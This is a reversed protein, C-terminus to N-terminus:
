RRQKNIESSLNKTMTITRSTKLNINPQTQAMHLAQQYALVPIGKSAYLAINEEPVPVVNLNPNDNFYTALAQTNELRSPDPIQVFGFVSQKMTHLIEAHTLINQVRYSAHALQPLKVKQHVNRYNQAAQTLKTQKRFTSKTAKSLSGAAQSVALVDKLVTNDYGQQQMQEYLALTAKELQEAEEPTIRSLTGTSNWLLISPVTLTEEPTAITQLM